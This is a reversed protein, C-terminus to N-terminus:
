KTVVIQRPGAMEETARHIAYESYMPFDGARYVQVFYNIRSTGDEDIEMGALAEQVDEDTPDVSELGPLSGTISYIFSIIYAHPLFFHISRVNRLSNQMWYFTM